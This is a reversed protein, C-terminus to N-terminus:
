ASHSPLFIPPAAYLLNSNPPTTVTFPQRDDTLSVM